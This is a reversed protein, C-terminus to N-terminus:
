EDFDVGKRVSSCVVGIMYIKGQFAAFLLTKGFDRQSSIIFPPLGVGERRSLVLM